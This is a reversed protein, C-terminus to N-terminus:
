KKTTIHSTTLNQIIKGDWEVEYEKEEFVIELSDFYM